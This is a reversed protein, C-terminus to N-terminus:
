RGLKRPNLPVARLSTAPDQGSAVRAPRGGPQWSQPRVYIGGQYDRDQRIEVNILKPQCSISVVRVEVPVWPRLPKVVEGLVECRGHSPVGMALVDTDRVAEELSGTARLSEV